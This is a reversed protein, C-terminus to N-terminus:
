VIRSAPWALANAFMAVEHEVVSSMSRRAFSPRTKDPVLRWSRSNGVFHEMVVLANHDTPQHLTRRGDVTVWAHRSYKVAYESYDLWSGRTSFTRAFASSLSITTELAKGM